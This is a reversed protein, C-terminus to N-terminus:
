ESIKTWWESKDGRGAKGEGGQLRHMVAGKSGKVGRGEGGGGGM